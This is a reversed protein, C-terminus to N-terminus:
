GDTDGGDDIPGTLVFARPRWATHTMRVTGRVRLVACAAEVEERPAGIVEALRGLTVPRGGPGGHEALTRLIPDILDAAAM